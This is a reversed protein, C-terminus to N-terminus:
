EQLKSQHYALEERAMKAMINYDSPQYLFNNFFPGRLEKMSGAVIGGKLPITTFNRPETIVGGEPDRRSMKKDEAPRPKYPWASLHANKAHTVAKTDKWRKEHWKMWGDKVFTRKSM